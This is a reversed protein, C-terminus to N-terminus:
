AAKVCIETPDGNEIGSATGAIEEIDRQLVQLPEFAFHEIQERAEAFHRRKLTGSQRDVRVLNETDFRVGAGGCDCLQYQPDAVQLPM